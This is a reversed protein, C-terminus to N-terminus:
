DGTLAQNQGSGSDKRWSRSLVLLFWRQPRLTKLSAPPSFVKECKSVYDRELSVLIMGGQPFTEATLSVRCM